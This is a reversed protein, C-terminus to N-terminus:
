ANRGGIAALDKEVDKGARMIRDLYPREQSQAAPWMFPEARFRRTGKEILHAYRSPKVLKAGQSTLASGDKGPVLIGRVRIKRMIGGMHGFSITSSVNAVGAKGRGNNKNLTWTIANLLSRTQVSPSSLIRGQAHRVIERVTIETADNTRTRMAEPLAQFAAKAERLGQVHGAIANADNPRAM